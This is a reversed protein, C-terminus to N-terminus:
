ISYSLFAGYHIGGAKADDGGVEPEASSYDVKLGAGLQQTFNYKGGLEGYFGLASGDTNTTTEVKATTYAIGAGALLEVKDERLNYYKRAGARIESTISKRDVSSIKAEKSSRYYGLMWNVPLEGYQADGEIGFEFQTQLDNSYQDKDLAKQGLFLNTNINSFSAEASTAGLGGIMITILLLLISKKM